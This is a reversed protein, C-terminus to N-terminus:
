RSEKRALSANGGSKSVAGRMRAGIPSSGVQDARQGACMVPRDSQGQDHMMPNRGGAKGIRGTKGNAVPSWPSERNERVSIGCM